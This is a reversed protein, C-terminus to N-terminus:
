GTGISLFESISNGEVVLSVSLSRFVSVFNSKSGGGGGVVGDVGTTWGDVEVTRVPIQGNRLVILTLIFEDKPPSKLWKQECCKPLDVRPQTEEM